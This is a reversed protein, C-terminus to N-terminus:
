RYGGGNWYEGGGQGGSGNGYGGPGSGAGDPGFEHQQFSPSQPPSQPHPQDYYQQTPSGQMGPNAAYPSASAFRPSQQPGDRLLPQTSSAAATPSGMGGGSGSDLPSSPTVAPTGAPISYSDKDTMGDRAMEKPNYESANSTFSDPDIGSKKYRELELREAEARAEAARAERAGRRRQRICYFLAAVVLVGGLGAGCAIIAIKAANPLEDWKEALTKEPPALIIDRVTSNGRHSATLAQRGPLPPPPRASPRKQRTTQHVSVRRGQHKGM